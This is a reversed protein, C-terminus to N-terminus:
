QTEFYVHPSGSGSIFSGDAFLVDNRMKVQVQNLVRILDTRKNEDFESESSVRLSSTNNVLVISIKCAASKEGFAISSM